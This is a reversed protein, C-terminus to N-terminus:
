VAVAYVCAMQCAPVSDSASFANSRNWSVYSGALGLRGDAELFVALDQQSKVAERGRVPLADPRGM